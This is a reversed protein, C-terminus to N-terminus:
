HCTAVSASIPQATQHGEALKDPLVPQAYLSSPAPLRALFPQVVPTTTPTTPFTSRVTRRPWQGPAGRWVPFPFLQDLAWCWSRPYVTCPTLRRRRKAYSAQIDALWPLYKGGAMQLCELIQISRSRSVRHDIRSRSAQVQESELTVPRQPWSDSAHLPSRGLSTLNRVYPVRQAPNARSLAGPITTLLLTRSLPHDSPDSPDGPDGPRTFTCSPGPEQLIDCCVTRNRCTRLPRVRGLLLVRASETHHKLTLM